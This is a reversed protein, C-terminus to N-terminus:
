TMLAVLFSLSEHKTMTSTKTEEKESEAEWPYKKFIIKLPLM